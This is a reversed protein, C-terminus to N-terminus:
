ERQHNGRYEVGGLIQQVSAVIVWRDIRRPDNTLAEAQRVLASNRFEILCNM